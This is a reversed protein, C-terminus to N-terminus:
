TFGGGGGGLIQGQFIAGLLLNFMAFPISINLHPITIIGSVSCMVNSTFVKPKNVDSSLYDYSKFNRIYTLFEVWTEINELELELHSDEWNLRVNDLIHDHNCIMWNKLTLGEWNLTRATRIVCVNIYTYAINRTPTNKIYVDMCPAAWPM